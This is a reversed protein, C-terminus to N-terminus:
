RILFFYLLALQALLILPIGWRFKNHRTKHRFVYMGALAGVSGGFVALLILADEPIRWRGRKAKWKDAGFILFSVLNIGILWYVLETM